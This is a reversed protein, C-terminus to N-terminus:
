LRWARRIVDLNDELIYKASWEHTALAAKLRVSEDEFASLADRFGQWARKSVPIKANVNEKYPMIDTTICPVGIASFEQLKIGSKCTNFANEELPIVVVDLNLLKAYDMYDEVAVFEHFEIKNVWKPDNYGMFVWEYKDLTSSVLQNIIQLDGVHTNSGAWGVRLKQKQRMKPKQYHKASVYNPVVVPMKRSFKFTHEAMPITSASLYDSMALARALCKKNIGKFYRHYPNTPPVQWLLDDIDHIIELGVSKYFELHTIMQEETHRQVIVKSINQEQLQEM